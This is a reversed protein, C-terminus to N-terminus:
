EQICQHHEIHVNNLTFLLISFPSLPPFVSHVLMSSDHRFTLIWARSSNLWDDTKRRRREIRKEREIIKQDGARDIQEMTQRRVIIFFSWFYTYNFDLNFLEKLHLFILRSLLLKLLEELFSDNWPLRDCSTRGFFQRLDQDKDCKFYCFLIHPVPLSLFLIFSRSLHYFVVIIPYPFPIFPMRKRRTDWPFSVRAPIM